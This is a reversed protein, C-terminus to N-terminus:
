QSSNTKHKLKCLEQFVSSVLRDPSIDFRLCLFYQIGYNDMHYRIPLWGLDSLIACKSSMCWLKLVSKACNYQMASLLDYLYKKDDFWTSCGYTITPMAINHWLTSGFDIRNIDLHKSLTMQIYGKLTSLKQKLHTKIHYSDKLNRAIFVGLYKYENVENLCLNGIRWIKDKDIRKGIVM